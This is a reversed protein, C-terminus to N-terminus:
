HPFWALPLSLLLRLHQAQCHLLNLLGMIRDNAFHSSFCDEQQCLLGWTPSSMDTIFDRDSGSAGPKPEPHWLSSSVAQSLPVLLGFKKISLGLAVSDARQGALEAQQQFAPM